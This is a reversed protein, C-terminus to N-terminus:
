KKKSARLAATVSPAAFKVVPMLGFLVGAVLSVALTFLLVVPDITINELRPLFAPALSVLLRLAAYALGLGIIGGLMALFVSEVLFDRAIQASGAGLATRIALEQQRGEARV